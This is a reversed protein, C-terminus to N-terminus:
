TSQRCLVTNLMIKHIKGQANGEGFNVGLTPTRGTEIPTRGTEIPTRGTELAGTKVM